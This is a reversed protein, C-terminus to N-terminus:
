FPNTVSQAVPCGINIEQSKPLSALLQAFKEPEFSRPDRRTGSRDVAKHTTIRDAPVGTKSVLWAAARYQADTYGSHTNGNHRGDPPTEFSIHYAFNNVSSSYLRNTKVSEGAFISNGAGFARKDPPVLYFVTGDRKILTHYSVQDEDRPHPTQFFRVTQWGASVTEHLVIIPSNSVPQGNIDQLYREGFNTPHALAVEERPQIPMFPRVSDRQPDVPYRQPSSPLTTLSAQPTSARFRDVTLFGPVFATEINPQPPYLKPRLQCGVVPVGARAYSQMRNRNVMQALLVGPPSSIAYDAVSRVAWSAKISGMLLAAVLALTGLVISIKRKMAERGVQFAIAPCGAGAIAITM